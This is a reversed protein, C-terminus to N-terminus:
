SRDSRAALRRAASTRPASASRTSSRPPSRRGPGPDDVVPPGIWPPRAGAVVPELAPVSDNPEVVLWEIGYAEAVQRITDLPDNPSVVGGRGTWYRFGAADISM